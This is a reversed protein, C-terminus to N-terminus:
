EDLFSKEAEAMAEETIGNLLCIEKLVRQIPAMAKERLRKAEDLTFRPELVGKVFMGLELLEADIKDKIMAKRRLTAYDHQTFAQIRVAVDKGWEPVEVLKTPLDDFLMIEDKSLVRLHGNGNGNSNHVQRDNEEDSM